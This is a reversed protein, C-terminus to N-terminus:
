QEITVTDGIKIGYKDSFGANVELVYDIPSPPSYIPLPQPDQSSPPPINKNIAIITNESIWIIDIPILMDKMWFGPTAKNFHFLMGSFQDLNKRHGLGLQKQADTAALLVNLKVNGVSVVKQDYWSYRANSKGLLAVLLIFFVGFLFILIKTTVSLSPKRSAKIPPHM